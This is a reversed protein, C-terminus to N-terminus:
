LACGIFTFNHFRNIPQGDSAYVPCCEGGSYAFHWPIRDGIIDRVTNIEAMPDMALVMYRGLCPFMVIGNLDDSELLTKSSKEATQLIDEVEMKGIYLGSGEPMAGGCVASGDDNLCYIARAIPQAGDAYDVMFPVSSMAEVGRRSTLGISEFYEKATMNNIRKLISGESSTIIAQQKKLNQESTTLMVFRPNVNGSILVFSIRDKFCEGNRITHSNSYNATDYDCAVTGFLPTSDLAKDLASLAEEGGLGGFRPLFAFTLRAPGPLSDKAQKAAATTAGELDKAISETVATVFQCDDATLVTLCLLMSGAEENSANTLTTCGVVDFPLANCIEQVMGAEIFDYSCTILGVSNKQANRELNLQDLIESVAIAPDDLELTWANLLKM